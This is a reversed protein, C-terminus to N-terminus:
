LLESLLEAAEKQMSDTVHSYLDLTIGISSHGLRESAIRAPIGKKLMYTANIHRLDHFRIAPLKNEVLVKKFERNLTYSKIPSGDIHCIVLNTHTNTNGNNEQELKYKELAQTLKESMLISRKGKATKTSSYQIEGECLVQSRNIHMTRNALDIDSWMLGM